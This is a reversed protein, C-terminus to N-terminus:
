GKVNSILDFGSLTTHQLDIRRSIVNDIYPVHIAHLSAHYLLRGGCAVVLWWLGGCAVVLWWLGGCAVVLWWLGGCAV